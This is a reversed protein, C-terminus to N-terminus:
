RLDRPMSRSSRWCTVTLVITALGDAIRVIAATSRTVSSKRTASPAPRTGPVLHPLPSSSTLLHPLPSPSTLFLHPLPSSTLLHPPPSSTLLHPPPSSSTLLLHPRPHSTSPLIPSATAFLVLPVTPSVTTASVTLTLRPILHRRIPSLPPSSNSVLPPTPHSRAPIPRVPFVLRSRTPVPTSMCQGDLDPPSHPRNSKGKM